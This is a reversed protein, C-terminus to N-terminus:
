TKKLIIPFVNTLRLEVRVVAARHAEIPIFGVWKDDDWFWFNVEEDRDLPNVVSLDTMLVNYHEVM